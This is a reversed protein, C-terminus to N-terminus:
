DNERKESQWNFLNDWLRNPLRIVRVREMNDGDVLSEYKYCVMQFDIDEKTTDDDHYNEDLSCFWVVKSDNGSKFNFDPLILNWQTVFNDVKPNFPLEFMYETKVM